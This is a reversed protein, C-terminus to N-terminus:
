GMLSSHCSPGQQPGHSMEARGWGSGPHTKQKTKNRKIKIPAARRCDSATCSGLWTADGEGEGPSPIKTILLKLLFIYCGNVLTGPVIKVCYFEKLADM